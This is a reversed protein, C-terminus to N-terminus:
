QQKAAAASQWGENIADSTLSDAYEGAEAKVAWWRIKIRTRETKQHLRIGIRFSGKKPFQVTGISIRPYSSAFESGEFIEQPGTYISNSRQWMEPVPIDSHESEDSLAATLLVAENAGIELGHEIEESYFNKQRRQYWKKVTQSVISIEVTGSAIYREKVEEHEQPFLEKFEQEIDPFQVIAASDQEIGKAKAADTGAESAASYDHAEKDAAALLKYLLTPNIVYDKFPLSEVQDIVYSAGMQLLHIKAIYLCPEAPSEIARDLSRSHFAELIRELASQGATEIMQKINSLEYILKDGIVLKATGAKVGISIVQKNEQEENHLARLSIRKKYSAAGGDTPESFVIKGQILEEALEAHLLEPEYEFSIHPTQLTKEVTLEIHFLQGPEVYRPVTQLVRVQGDDYWVTTDEILADYELASPVPPQEKVYLRYSELIRNHESVEENAGLSGTVTHVPEKGKEDYALCLYVNKAYDNNTFGDMNSLKMTVPSPVIIERGLQDLAAGAEISISKDDVAVVQLGTIVGSGFLLRNSLRRKDSYYTQESMFDRVTLLKGYFYRNREFPIYRSRNM